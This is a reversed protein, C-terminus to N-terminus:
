RWTIFLFTRVGSPLMGRLSFPLLSSSFRTPTHYTLEARRFTDCLISLWSAPSARSTQFHHFPPTLAWWGLRLRPPIFFGMHHLVLYSSPDGARHPTTEGQFSRTNLRVRGQDPDQGVLYSLSITM